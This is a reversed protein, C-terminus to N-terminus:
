LVNAHGRSDEIHIVDVDNVAAGFM